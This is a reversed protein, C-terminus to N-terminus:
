TIISILHRTCNRRLARTVKDKDHELCACISYRYPDVVRELAVTSPPAQGLDQRALNPVLM